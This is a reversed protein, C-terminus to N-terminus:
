IMHWNRFINYLRKENSKENRQLLIQCISIGPMIKLLEDLMSNGLRIISVAINDDDLRWNFYTNYYGLPGENTVEFNSELALTEEIILRIIRRALHRFKDRSITKDRILGIPNEVANSNLVTLNLYFSM